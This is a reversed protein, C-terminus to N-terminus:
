PRTLLTEPDNEHDDGRRFAAEIMRLAKPEDTGLSRHEKTKLKWWRVLRECRARDNETGAGARELVLDVFPRERETEAKRIQWWRFLTLFFDHYSARQSRDNLLHEVVRWSVFDIPVIENVYCTFRVRRERPRWAEVPQYLFTFRENRDNGRATEDEDLVYIEDHRPWASISRVGIRTELHQWSEGRNCTPGLYLVRVGPALQARLWSHYGKRVVYSETRTRQPGFDAPVEREAYVDGWRLHEFARGDGLAKHDEGDRVLTFYRDVQAPDLANIDARPLPHLLTSRQLIGSLALLGAAFNKMAKKAAEPDPKGWVDMPSADTESPFFRPWLQIDIWLRYLNEGNRVLLYVMQDAEKAAIAEFVNLGSRDKANRRVRLGVIGKPHPFIAQLHAPDATLWADFADLDRYDFEGIREPNHMWDHVAIEEDMCLIRQRVTIKEDAPAPAGARLQKVEENVGLFLEILWIQEMRAQLEARLVAAAAQLERKARELEGLRQDLALAREEIDVRRASRLGTAEGAPVIATTSAAEIAGAAEAPLQAPTFADSEPETPPIQAVKRREGREVAYVQVYAGPASSLYVKEVYGNKGLREEAIPASSYQHPFLAGVRFARIARKLSPADVAWLNHDNRGFYYTTM